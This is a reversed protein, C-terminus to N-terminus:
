RDLGEAWRGGKLPRPPPACRRKSVVQGNLRAIPHRSLLLAPNFVLDLSSTPQSSLFKCAALHRPLQFSHTFCRNSLSQHWQELTDDDWCRQQMGGNTEAM